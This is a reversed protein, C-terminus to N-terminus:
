INGLSYNKLSKLYVIVNSGGSLRVQMINCFIFGWSYKQIVCCALRAIRSGTVKKPGSFYIYKEEEPLKSALHIKIHGKRIPGLDLQM